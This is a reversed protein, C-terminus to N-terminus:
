KQYKKLKFLNTLFYLFDFNSPSFAYCVIEIRDKNLIYLNIIKKFFYLCKNNFCIVLIVFIFFHNKFILIEYTFKFEFQV